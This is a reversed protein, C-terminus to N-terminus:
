RKRKDTFVPPNRTHFAQICLALLCSAEHAAPANGAVGAVYIEGLKIKLKEIGHFATRSSVRKLQKTHLNCLLKTNKM